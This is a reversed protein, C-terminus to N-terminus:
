GLLFDFLGTPLVIGLTRVFLLHVAVGFAIAVGVMLGWRREGWLAGLAVMAVTMTPVLGVHPFVLIAVIILGLTAAFIPPIRPLPPSVAGIARWSLLLALLVMTGIVLQPFREAGMGEMLSEPISDFGLTAVFAAAGFAVVAAAVALDPHRWHRRGPREM